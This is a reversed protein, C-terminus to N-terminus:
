WATTMTELPSLWRAPPLLHEVTSNIIVPHRLQFLVVHMCNALGIESVPVASYLIDFCYGIVQKMCNSLMVCSM